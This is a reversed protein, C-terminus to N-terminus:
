YPSVIWPKSALRGPFATLLFQDVPRCLRTLRQQFFHSSIELWEGYGNYAILIYSAEHFCILFNFVVAKLLNKCQLLSKFLLFLSSQLTLSCSSGTQKLSLIAWKGLLTFQGAIAMTHFSNKAINYACNVIYMERQAYLFFLVIFIFKLRNGGM